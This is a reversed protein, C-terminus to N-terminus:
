LRPICCLMQSAVVRVVKLSIPYLLLLGWRTGSIEVVFVQGWLSCLVAHQWHVEKYGVLHPPTVSHLNWLGMANEQWQTTKYQPKRLSLSELRFVM